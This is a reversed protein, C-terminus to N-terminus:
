DLIGQWATNNVQAVSLKGLAVSLESGENDEEDNIFGAFTNDSLFFYNLVFVGDNGEPSEDNDDDEYDDSQEAELDVFRSVN